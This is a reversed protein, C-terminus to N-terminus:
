AQGDGTEAPELRDLVWKKNLWFYQDPHALIAAELPPLSQRVIREADANRDAQPDPLIPEGCRWEHRGEPLRIVRAPIIPCEALHSMLGVGRMLDATHGLFPLQLDRSRARLDVLIAVVNGRRLSRIVKRLLMPDDRELVESGLHERMQNLFRDFLPNKQCKMIFTMPYGLRQLGIGAIDWNGLHSVAVIVGRGHQLSQDLRLRDAEAFTVHQHVWQLTVKPTRFVEITHWLLERFAGAAVRDIESEPVDPGLVQRIRRQAERRKSRWLHFGVAACGSGLGLALKQPLRNVVGAFARILLYEVIHKPRHM